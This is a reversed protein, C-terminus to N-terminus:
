VGMRALGASLASRLALVFLLSFVLAVGLFELQDADLSRGLVIGRILVGVPVAVAWTALLRRSGGSAYTRFLLAAGFWAGLFPLADHAYGTATIGHKHSVLGVTVFAVIAAADSAALVAPRTSPAIVGM